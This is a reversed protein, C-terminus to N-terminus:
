LVEVHSHLGSYFSHVLQESSNLRFGNKIKLLDDESLTIANDEIEFEADDHKKNDQNSGRLDSSLRVGILSTLCVFFLDSM